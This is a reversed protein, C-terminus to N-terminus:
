FIYVINIAAKTPGFYNHPVDSKEKKGCGVCRFQDWRTYAWGIGIEAEINWHRNIIWDYGYAIGAGVIWGQYRYDALRSFRTGLFDHLHKIGGVNYQGGFVHAGFFHGDWVDCLWYRAEPMILWHKWMKKGDNLEWANLQGTLELSWKPAVKLEAGVNPNLLADDFLDNKLAFKQASAGLCCLALLLAIAM